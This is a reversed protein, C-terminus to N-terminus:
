SQQTSGPAASLIMHSVKSHLVKTKGPNAGDCGEAEGKSEAYLRACHPPDPSNSAYFGSEPLTQELVSIVIKKRISGPALPSLEQLIRYL